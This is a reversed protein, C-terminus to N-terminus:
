VPNVAGRQLPTKTRPAEGAPLRLTLRARIGSGRAYDNATRALAWDGGRTVGLKAALWVRKVPANM